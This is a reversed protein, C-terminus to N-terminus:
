RVYFKDDILQDSTSDLTVSFYHAAGSQAFNINAENIEFEGEYTGFSLNYKEVIEKLNLVEIYKDKLSDYLNPSYHYVTYIPYPIQEFLEIKPNIHLYIDDEDDLHGYTLISKGAIKGKM